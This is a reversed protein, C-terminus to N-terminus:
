SCVNLKKNIQCALLNAIQRENKLFRKAILGTERGNLKKRFCKKVLGFNQETLGAAMVGAARPKFGLCVM